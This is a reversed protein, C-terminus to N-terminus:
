RQGLDISAQVREAVRSRRDDDLPL